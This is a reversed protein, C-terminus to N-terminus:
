LGDAKLVVNGLALRERARAISTLDGRDVAISGATPVGAAKMVEKAFWKSSELRAAAKTPGFCPIGEVACKDAIGEALPAEPGVIVLDAGISVAAEIPDGLVRRAVNPWGPNDALVVLDTLSPSKGIRWALAAERGAGGILVARM